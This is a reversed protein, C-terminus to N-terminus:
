GAAGDDALAAPPQGHLEVRKVTGNAYYEISKIRPCVGVHYSGCYSCPGQLLAIAEPSASV